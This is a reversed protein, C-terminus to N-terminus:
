AKPTWDRIQRKTYRTGDVFVHNIKTGLGYSEFVENRVQRLAMDHDTASTVISLDITKGEHMIRATVDFIELGDIYMKDAKEAIVEFAERVVVTFDSRSEYLSENFSSRTLEQFRRMAAKRYKAHYEPVFNHEADAMEKLLGLFKKDTKWAPTQGRTVEVKYGHRAYTEQLTKLASRSVIDFSGKVKGGLRIQVNEMVNDGARGKEWKPKAPADSPNKQFGNATVQAVNQKKPETTTPAKRESSKPATTSNLNKEPKATPMKEGSKKETKMNSNGHPMRNVIDGAMEGNPLDSKGKGEDKLGKPNVQKLKTTQNPKRDSKAKAMTPGKYTKSWAPVKGMSDVIQDARKTESASGGKSRGPTKEEKPAEVQTIKTLKGAMDGPATVERTKDNSKAQREYKAAEEEQLMAAVLENSLKGM